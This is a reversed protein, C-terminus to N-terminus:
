ICEEVSKDSQLLPDTGLRAIRLHGTTHEVSMLYPDTSGFQNRLFFLDQHLHTGFTSDSYPNEYHVAIENHDLESTHTRRTSRKRNKRRPHFAVCSKCQFKRMARLMTEGSFKMTGQNYSGKDMAQAIKTSCAHDRLHGYKVHRTEEATLKAMKCRANFNFDNNRYYRDTQADLEHNASNLATLALPDINSQLDIQDSDSEEFLAKFKNNFSSSVDHTQSSHNLSHNLTAKPLKTICPSAKHSVHTKLNSLKDNCSFVLPLSGPRDIITTQGNDSTSFSNIPPDKPHLKAAIRNESHFKAESVLNLDLDKCLYMWLDLGEHYGIQTMMQTGLGHFTVPSV